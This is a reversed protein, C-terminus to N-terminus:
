PTSSFIVLTVVLCWFNGFILWFPMILEKKGSPFFFGRGFASARRLSVYFTVTSLTQWMPCISSILTLKKKGTKRKNTWWKCPNEFIKIAHNCSKSVRSPVVDQFFISSIFRGLQLLSSPTVTWHHSGSLLTLCHMTHYKHKHYQFLCQVTYFSLPICKFILFNIIM